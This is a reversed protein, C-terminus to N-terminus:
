TILHGGLGFALVKTEMTHTRQVTDKMINCSSMVPGVRTLPSGFDVPNLLDPLTIRLIHGSSAIAINDLQRPSSNTHFETSRKYTVAYCRSLSSTCIPFLNEEDSRSLALNYILPSVATNRSRPGHYAGVSAAICAGLQLVEGDGYIGRLIIDRKPLNRIKTTTM